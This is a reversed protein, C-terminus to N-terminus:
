YKKLFDIKINLLILHSCQGDPMQKIIHPYDTIIKRVSIQRAAAQLRSDAKMDQKQGSLM